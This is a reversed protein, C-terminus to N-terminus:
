IVRVKIDKFARTEKFELDEANIKKDQLLSIIVNPFNVGAIHSFPYQGGFRSNFELIYIKDESIFLDLDLNGIHNTINSIQKSLDMLDQRNTVFAIDTEGARMALKQKPVSVLYRRELDNFIDIGWEEGIIKEQIIISEDINQVSEYKLYSFLIDKKVKNYFVDLELENDAQYIGISGM